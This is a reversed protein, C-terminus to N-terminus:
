YNVQFSREVHGNLNDHVVSAFAPELEIGGILSRNHLRRLAELLEGAEAVRRNLLGPRPRRALHGLEIRRRSFDQEHWSQHAPSHREAATRRHERRDAEVFAAIVYIFDSYMVRMRRWRT